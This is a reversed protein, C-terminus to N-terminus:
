EEQKSSLNKNENQEGPVAVNINFNGDLLEDAIKCKDHMNFAFFNYYTSQKSLNDKKVECLIFDPYDYDVRLLTILQNSLKNRFTTCPIDNKFIIEVTAKYYQLTLLKIKDIVDDIMEKEFRKFREEYTTKM